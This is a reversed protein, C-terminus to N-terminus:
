HRHPYEAKERRRSERVSDIGLRQQHGSFHDSRVGLVLFVARLTVVAGIAATLARQTEGAVLVDRRVGRLSTSEVAPKGTDIRRLAAGTVRLMQAAVRIDDFQDGLLEVMRHGVKHKLACVAAQGTVATMPRVLEEAISGRIAQGAMLLHLRVLALEAFLARSAVLGARPSAHLEIVAFRCERQPFLVEFNRTHLAMEAVAVLVRGALADGAMRGVVDVLALTALAAAFTVGGRSPLRGLEVVGLFRSEREFANVRADVTLITMARTAEIVLQWLVTEATM